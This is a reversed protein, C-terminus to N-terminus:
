DIAENLRRQLAPRCVGEVAGEELDRLQERAVERVTLDRREEREEGEQPDALYYTWRVLHDPHRELERLLIEAERETKRAVARPTDSDPCLESLPGGDGIQRQVAPSVYPNSSRRVSDVVAWAMPM